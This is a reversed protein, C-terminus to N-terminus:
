KQLTEGYRSLLGTSRRGPNSGGPSEGSKATEVVPTSPLLITRLVCFNAGTDMEQARMGLADTKPTDMEHATNILDDTNPAKEIQLAYLIINRFPRINRM